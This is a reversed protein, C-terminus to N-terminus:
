IARVTFANHLWGLRLRDVVGKTPKTSVRPEPRSDIAHVAILGRGPQNRSQARGPPVRRASPAVPARSLRREPAIRVAAVVPVTRTAIPSTPESCMIGSTAILAFGAVLCAAAATM